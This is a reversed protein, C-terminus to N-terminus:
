LLAVSIDIHLQPRLDIFCGGAQRIVGHVGAALMIGGKEVRSCTLGIIQDGTLIWRYSMSLLSCEFRAQLANIKGRIDFDDVIGRSGLLLNRVWIRVLLIFSLHELRLWFLSTFDMFLENQLRVLFNSLEIFDVPRAFKVLYQGTQADFLSM